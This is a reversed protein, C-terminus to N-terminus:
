ISYRYAIKCARKYCEAYYTEYSMAQYADCEHRDPKNNIGLEFNLIDLKKSNKLRKVNYDWDAVGDYPLLHLDDHWFVEGDFRSIGLNDNLHTMILRDGFKALLDESHNYCMEHGSDWCFGVTEEDKFFDMLKFLLDERETNEFAVKVGYEKAKQVVKSYNKFGNELSFNEPKDWYEFWVHMVLVPISHKKCVELAAFYESLAFDVRDKNDGWMIACQGFTAHLSQIELGLGKATNIIPDYDVDPIWEPSIADFKSKAIIEIIETTPIKYNNAVSIGIKQKWM